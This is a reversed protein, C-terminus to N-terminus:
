LDTNKQVRKEFKENKWDFYIDYIQSDGLHELYDGYLNCTITFGKEPLSCLYLIEKVKQLSEKELGSPNLKYFESQQLGPFIQNTVDTWENSRFEYFSLQSNGQFVYTSNIGVISIDKNKRWVAFEAKFYDGYGPKRISLFGNAKNIIEYGWKQSNGTTEDIEAKRKLIFEKQELPIRHDNFVKYPLIQYLEVIDLKEKNAPLKSRDYDLTPIEKECFSLFIILLISFSKKFM